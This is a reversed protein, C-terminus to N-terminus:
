QDEWFHLHTQRLIACVWFKQGNGLSSFTTEFGCSNQRMGQKSFVGFLKQMLLGFGGQTHTWNTLGVFISLKTM